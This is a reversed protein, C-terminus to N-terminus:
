NPRTSSSCQDEGKGLAKGLERAHKEKL